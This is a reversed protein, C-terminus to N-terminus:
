KKAKNTKFLKHFGKSGELFRKAELEGIGDGILNINTEAPPRSYVYDIVENLLAQMKKNQQELNSVIDCLGLITTNKYGGSIPDDVCTEYTHLARKIRKLDEEIKDLRASGFM